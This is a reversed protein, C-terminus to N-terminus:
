SYTLSLVAEWDARRSIAGFDRILLRLIDPITVYGTPLHAHHLEERGIIAGHGVHLHQADYSSLGTPHWHYALIERGDANLIEYYYGEEAITWLTPALESQVVGYYQRVSLWM